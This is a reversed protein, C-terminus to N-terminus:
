QQIYQVTLSFLFYAYQGAPVDIMASAVVGSGMTVQVGLIAPFPNINLALLMANFTVDYTYVYNYIVVFGKTYNIQPKSQQQCDYSAFATFTDLLVSINVGESQQVTFTLGVIVVLAYDNDPPTTNITALSYSNGQSTTFSLTITFTNPPM